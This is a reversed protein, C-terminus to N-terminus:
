ALTRLWGGVQRGIGVSMRAFHEIQRRSLLRLDLALRMEQRLVELDTNADGLLPAKHAKPALSARVLNEFIAYLRREIREGLTFRMSRPFRAVVPVAWLLMARTEEVVVPLRGAAGSLAGAAKGQPLPPRAMCDNPAPIQGREPGPGPSRREASEAPRSM